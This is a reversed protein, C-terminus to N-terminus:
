AVHAGVRHEGTLRERWKPDLGIQVAEVIDEYDAILGDLEQDFGAVLWNYLESKTRISADIRMLEKLKPLQSDILATM